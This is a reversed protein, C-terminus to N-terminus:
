IRKKKGSKRKPARKAPITKSPTLCYCFAGFLQWMWIFTMWWIAFGALSRYASPPVFTFQLAKKTLFGIESSGLVQAQVNTGGFLSLQTKWMCCAALLATSLSLYQVVFMPFFNFHLKVNTQTRLLANSDDLLPSTNRPELLFWQSHFRFLLFRSLIFAFVLGIRVSHWTSKDMFCEATDSIFSIWSLNVVLPLLGHLALLLSEVVGISITNKRTYFHYFKAMQLAPEFSIFAILGAFVTTLAVSLLRIVHAWLKWESESNELRLERSLAHVQDCLSQICNEMNFDFWFPPAFIVFLSLIAGIIAIGISIYQQTDYAKSQTFQLRNMQVPFMLSILLLTWMGYSATAEVTVFVSKLYQFLTMAILSVSMIIFYEYMDYYAIQQFSGISARICEWKLQLPQKATTIQENTTPPLLIILDKLIYASVSFLSRLRFQILAFLLGLVADVSLLTM